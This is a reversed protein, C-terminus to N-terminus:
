KKFMEWGLYMFDPPLKIKAAYDHIPDDIPIADIGKEECSKLYASLTIAKAKEKKATYQHNKTTLTADVSPTVHMPALPQAIVPALPIMNSPTADVSPTLMSINIEYHRSQGKDGGNHNGVVRLYNKEILLHVIRRAQCESVCTKKAISMISPHLSGGHDNCWDAMALMVLKETGGSNFYEWVLSMVKISM